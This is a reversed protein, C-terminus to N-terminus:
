MCLGLGQLVVPTSGGHFRHWAMWALGVLIASGAQRNVWTESWRGLAWQKLRSGGWLAPSSALSFVGALVAGQVASGSLFALSLASWWVGCPMMWWSLGAMLAPNLMRRRVPAPNLRANLATPLQVRQFGTASVSQGRVVMWTASAALVTWFMAQVALFLGQHGMVWGALVMSSGGAVAGALMTALLRGTLFSGAHGRKSLWPSGLGCGCMAACHPWALVGLAMATILLSVSM